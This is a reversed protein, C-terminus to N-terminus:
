SASRKMKSSSIYDYYISELFISFVDNLFDMLLENEKEM